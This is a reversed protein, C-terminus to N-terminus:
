AIREGGRIIAVRNVSGGDGAGNQKGAAFKLDVVVHGDVATTSPTHRDVTIGSETDKFIQPPSSLHLYLRSCRRSTNHAVLSRDGDDLRVASFDPRGAANLLNIPVSVNFVGTMHYDLVATVSSRAPEPDRSANRRVREPIPPLDVIEGGSLAPYLDQQLFIQRDCVPAVRIESHLAPRRDGEV